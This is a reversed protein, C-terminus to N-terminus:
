KENDKEIEGKTVNSANETLNKISCGFVTMQYDFVDSQVLGKYRFSILIIASTNLCKQACM